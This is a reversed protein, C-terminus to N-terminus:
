KTDEELYRRRVLALDDTSILKNVVDYYAVAGEFEALAQPFFDFKM